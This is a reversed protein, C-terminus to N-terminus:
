QDIKREINKETESKILDKVLRKSDSDVNEVDEIDELFMKYLCLLFTQPANKLDKLKFEMYKEAFRQSQVSIPLSKDLIGNRTNESFFAKAGRETSLVDFWHHLFTPDSKAKQQLRAIFHEANLREEHKKNEPHKTQYNPGSSSDNLQNLKAANELKRKERAFTPESSNQHAVPFKQSLEHQQAICSELIAQNYNPSPSSYLNQLHYPHRSVLPSRIRQIESLTFFTGPIFQYKTSPSPTIANQTLFPPPNAQNYKFQSATRWNRLSKNESFQSTYINQTPQAFL